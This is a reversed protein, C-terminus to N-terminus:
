RENYSVGVLSFVRGREIKEKSNHVNEGFSDSKTKEAWGGVRHTADM